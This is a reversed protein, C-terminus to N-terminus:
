GDLPFNRSTLKFIRPMQRLRATVYSISADVGLFSTRSLHAAAVLAMSLGITTYGRALVLYTVRDRRDQQERM